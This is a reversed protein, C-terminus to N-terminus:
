FNEGGSTWCGAPQNAMKSLQKDNPVDFIRKQADDYISPM